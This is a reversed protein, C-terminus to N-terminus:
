LAYWGINGKASVVGLESGHKILRLPIALSTTDISGERVINGSADITVLPTATEKKLGGFLALVRGRQRDSGTVVRGDPSHVYTQPDAAFHEVKGSPIEVTWMEGGDPSTIAALQPSLLDVQAFQHLTTPVRHILRLPDASADWLEIQLSAARILFGDGGYHLPQEFGSYPVRKARVLSGDNPNLRMMGGGMLQILLSQGAQATGALAGIGISSLEHRWLLDGAFYFASVTSMQRPVNLRVSIVHDDLVLLDGGFRILPIPPSPNEPYWRTV